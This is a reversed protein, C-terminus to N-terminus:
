AWGPTELLRLRCTHDCVIDFVMLVSFYVLSPSLFDFQRNYICVFLCNPSPFPLDFLSERLNYSRYRSSVM